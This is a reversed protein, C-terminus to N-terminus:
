APNPSGAAQKTEQFFYTDSVTMWEGCKIGCVFIIKNGERRALYFRGHHGNQCAVLTQNEDFVNFYFLQNPLDDKFCFIGERPEQM